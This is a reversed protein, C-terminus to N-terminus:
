RTHSTRGKKGRVTDGERHGFHSREQAPTSSWNNMSQLFMILRGCKEDATSKRKRTKGRHRLRWPYDVLM